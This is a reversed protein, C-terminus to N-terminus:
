KVPLKLVMGETIADEDDLSPNLRLIDGIRKTSGLRNKAISSLHDGRHVIYDVSKASTNETDADTKKKKDGPKDGSAGSPTVPSPKILRDNRPDANNIAVRRVESPKDNSYGTGGPVPKDDNTPNRVEAKKSKDPIAVGAPPLQAKGLLVDKPPIVLMNGVRLANKAGVRGKNYNALEEWLSADGYSVKAIKYLSDNEQIKYDKVKGTTIPLDAQAVAREPPRTGTPTTSEDKGTTGPVTGKPKGSRDGMDIVEHAGAVPKKASGDTSSGSERVAGVKNSNNETEVFPSKSSDLSNTSGIPTSLGPPTAGFYRPTEATLDTGIKAQRAHSFHDSILAAVVLVVAFGLIVALKSERTM